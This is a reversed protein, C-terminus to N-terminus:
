RYFGGDGQIGGENPCYLMVDGGITAICNGWIEYNKDYQFLRGAEKGSISVTGNRHFDMAVYDSSSYTHTWTKSCLLELTLDGVHRAHEAIPVSLIQSRGILVGDVTASIYLPQTWDVNAFSASNGVSVSLVGFENTTATKTESCVVRDGNTIEVSVGVTENARPEGTANNLLTVQYGTQANMVMAACVAMMFIVIQKM